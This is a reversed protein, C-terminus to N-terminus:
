ASPATASPASSAAPWGSDPARIAMPWPAATATPWFVSRRCGAMRAMPSCRSRRSPRPRPWLANGPPSRNSRVAPMTPCSSTTSTSSARGAPRRWCAARDGPRHEDPLLHRRLRQARRQQVGPQRRERGQRRDAPQDPQRYDRDAGQLPLASPGRRRRGRRRRRCQPQGGSHPHGDPKRDPVAQDPRQRRGQLRHRVRGHRLRQVAARRIANASPDIAFVITGNASGVILSQGNISANGHVASSTPSRRADHEIRRNEIDLSLSGAAAQGIAGTLVAGGTIALTNNGAGGFFVNGVMTGANLALNESGTINGAGITSNGFIVGGTITPVISTNANAQQIVAVNGNTNGLYMAVIASHASDVTEGAVIPTMTATIFGTNKVSTLTGAEDDIAIAQGQTGGKATVKVSAPIGNVVASIAGDNNTLTTLSGGPAIRIATVTIPVVAAGDTVRTEGTSNGTLVVDSDSVALVTAGGEVTLASHNGASAIAAGSGILIATTDAKGSTHQISSASVSGLIDIGDALTVNGFPSTADGIAGPVGAVPVPLPNSGGIQIGTASVDPYVGNASVPGGITLSCLAGASGAGITIANSGGILLAPASGDVTLIGATVAAINGFAASAATTIVGGAVNGGIILAPGGQLTQDPNLKSLVSADPATTSRYGTATIAGNILVRGGVDGNLAIGTANEGTATVTGGVTVSGDIKGNTVIGYSVNGANPHGTSNGGVYTPTGGTVTFTGTNTLSGNLESNIAIGASNEGVITITGTNVISGVTVAGGNVLIGTRNGGNAFPGSKIGQNVTTDGTTTETNEITGTNTITPSVDGGSTDVWSRGAANASAPTPFRAATVSM